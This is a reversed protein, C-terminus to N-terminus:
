SGYYRDISKLYTMLDLNYARRSRRDIAIRTIKPTESKRLFKGITAEYREDYDRDPPYKVDYYDRNLLCGVQRSVIKGVDLLSNCTNIKEMTTKYRNPNIRLIRIIYDEVKEDRSNLPIPVERVILLEDDHIKSFYHCNREPDYTILNSQVEVQELVPLISLQNDLSSILSGFRKDREQPKFSSNFALAEKVNTISTLPGLTRPALPILTSSKSIPYKTTAEDTHDVEEDTHNSNALEEDTHDVEGDTHNSNAPSNIGIQDNVAKSIVTRLRLQSVNTSIRASRDRRRNVRRDEPLM